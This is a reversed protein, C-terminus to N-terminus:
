MALFVGARGPLWLSSIEIAAFSRSCMPMKLWATEGKVVIQETEVQRTRLYWLTWLWTGRLTFTFDESGCTSAGTVGWRKRFRCVCTQGFSLDDVCCGLFDLQNEGSSADCALLDLRLLHDVSPEMASWIIRHIEQDLQNNWSLVGSCRCFCLFALPKGHQDFTSWSKKYQKGTSVVKKAFHLFLM